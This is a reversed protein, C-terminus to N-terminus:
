DTLIDTYPLFTEEKCNRVCKKKNTDYANIFSSPTLSICSAVCYKLGPVTIEDIYPYNGSCAISM